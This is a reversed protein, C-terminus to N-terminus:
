TKDRRAVVVRPKRSHDDITPQLAFRADNAIITRVSENLQPSIEIFLTGGPALREAAQSVLREIVETGKPGAELAAHPEYDRVDRDLAAMEATTVYPPNSAIFDFRRDSPVGAFLDSQVFEIRDAVKHTEANRRAVALAAPSRDIATIRATPLKLAACVAIIGSGTGVDAIELGDARVAPKATKAADLLGVVLLETEPRPILVDPTVTFPLSYFERRGVLYAVPKGAARQKVLERYATRAAEPPVEDFRTYLMIRECGLAHALLVEADLRATDSGHEKLYGTTWTLLRGITWPEAASSM